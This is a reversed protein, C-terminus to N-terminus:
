TVNSCSYRPVRGTKQRLIPVDVHPSPFPWLIANGRANKFKLGRPMYVEVPMCLMLHMLTDSNREM